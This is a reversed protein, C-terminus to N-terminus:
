IGPVSELQAMASLGDYVLDPAWCGGQDLLRMLVEGAGGTFFCHEAPIQALAQSVAGVQALAIGHRVAEATSTGPVLSYEAKEAFRVRDTDLLLAREMLAPGPIIYGGTHQGSDQVHDITLATGADVVWFSGSCQARAGLMALWRDVGMRSPDVYSNRLEGSLARSQAFWPTLGWRGQLVEAFADESERDAVSAIWIAALDDCCNLLAEQSVQDGLVCRGRQVVEGECVLRWKASSNGIDVQLVNM